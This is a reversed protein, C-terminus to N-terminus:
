LTVTILFEWSRNTFTAGPIDYSTTFDPSFRAEVGVGSLLLGSLQCGLAFDGGIEVDKYHMPHSDFARQVSSRIPETGEVNVSRHVLIDIRPGALGYIEVTGFSTRLKPLVSVSVYDFTYSIKAFEGNGDPYEVTTVPIEPFGTNKRVFHVESSVRVWPHDFWEAFAGIDFGTRTELVYEYSTYQQRQNARTLGGKFGVATLSQGTSLTPLLVSSSILILMAQLYSTRMINPM